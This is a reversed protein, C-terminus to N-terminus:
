RKKATAALQLAPPSFLPQASRSAAPPQRRTWHKLSGLVFALGSYAYYLWHWPLSQLMFRVGRQRRLFQYTPWNLVVLGLGALTAAVLAWVLWPSLLLAAMLVYVLVVSLRSSTDLNLDNVMTRHRWILATWPLARYCFDAKILSIPTWRKLHKVQVQKDLRIPYGAWRLRYGLEIDEVSGKCAEDFGGVAFFVSRRIVGCAGWFTSAESRAMQHTYHHLLNKYQSLFNPAGPADDYSGILASLDPQAAFARAVQDLTDAQLTVDADVFFLLESSAAQAGINRARAPGGNRPLQIVKVRADQARFLEATQATDDACPGDIVIIIESAQHAFQGLSALCRRFNPGGCHVPTVISVRFPRHNM